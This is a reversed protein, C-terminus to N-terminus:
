DRVHAIAALEAEFAFSIRAFHPKEPEMRYIDANLLLAAEASAANRM